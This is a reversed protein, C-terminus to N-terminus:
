HWWCLKLCFVFREWTGSNHSRFLVWFKYRVAQFHKIWCPGPVYIFSTSLKAAWKRRRSWSFLFFFHLFFLISHFFFFLFFFKRRGSFFFHLYAFSFLGHRAFSSISSVVSFLLYCFLFLLLSFPILTNEGNGVSNYEHSFVEYNMFWEHFIKVINCLNSDHEIKPSKTETRPRNVM